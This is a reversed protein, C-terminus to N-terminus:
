LAYRLFLVGNSYVKTDLLNLQRISSTAKFLPIGGGFLVPNVKLIVIDILHCDLLYGALQGGGCLYINGGPAEKLQRVFTLPDERIVHLSDNQYEEM